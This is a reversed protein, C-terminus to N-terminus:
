MQLGNVIKVFFRWRIHKIPNQICRQGIRDLGEYFRKLCWLSFHFYLNLYIEIKICSESIRPAPLTLVESSFIWFFSIETNEYALELLVILGGVQKSSHSSLLHISNVLIMIYRLLTHPISFYMLFFSSHSCFKTILCGVSMEM